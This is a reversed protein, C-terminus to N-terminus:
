ARTFELLFFTFIKMKDPIFDKLEPEGVHFVIYCSTLPYHNGSLDVLFTWDDHRSPCTIRCRINM